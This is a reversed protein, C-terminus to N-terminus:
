CHGTELKAAEWQFSPPILGTPCTLSPTWHPVCETAECYSTQAVSEVSPSMGGSQERSSSSVCSGLPHTLWSRGTLLEFPSISLEAPSFLVMIGQQDSLVYLVSVVCRGAPQSGVKRMMLLADHLAGPKWSKGCQEHFLALCLWQM